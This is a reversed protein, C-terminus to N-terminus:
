PIRLVQGVFIQNVNTIGNAAAIQQYPVGYRLGIRFLNEGAQVVHSRGGAVSVGADDGASPLVVERDVIEGDLGAVIGEVLDFLLTVDPEFGGCATVPVIFQYGGSTVLVGGDPFVLLRTGSGGAAVQIQTEDLLAQALAGQVQLRSASLAEGGTASFVELGGDFRCFVVVPAAADPNLRDDNFLDNDQALAPAVGVVFLVWLLLVSRFSHM